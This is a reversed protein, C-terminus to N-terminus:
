HKDAKGDLKDYIGKLMSKIDAIDNRYDDKLVYKEPMKKVDDSLGDLASTIRTLVWGGFFAALAIGGNILTQTDM